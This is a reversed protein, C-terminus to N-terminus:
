HLRLLKEQSHAEESSASNTVDLRARSLDLTQARRPEALSM